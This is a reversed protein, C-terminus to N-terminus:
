EKELSNFAWLERRNGNQIQTQTVVRSRIINAHGSRSLFSAEHTKFKYLSIMIHIVTQGAVEPFGM